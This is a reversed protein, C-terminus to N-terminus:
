LANSGVHCSTFLWMLFEEDMEKGPQRIAVDQSLQICEERLRRIEERIVALRESELSLPVIGMGILGGKPKRFLTFVQHVVLHAVWYFGEDSNSHKVLSELGELRELAEEWRAQPVGTREAWEEVDRTNKLHAEIWAYDEVMDDTWIGRDPELTYYGHADKHAWHHVVMDRLISGIQAHYSPDFWSLIDQKTARKKLRASVLSWLSQASSQSARAQAIRRQYTRLSMGLLDAAVKKPVGQRELEDVVGLFFIDGVWNIPRRVGKENALHATMAGAEYAIAYVLKHLSRNWIKM